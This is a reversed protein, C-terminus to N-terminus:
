EPYYFCFFTRHGLMDIGADERGYEPEDVGCVLEGARDADQQRPQQQQGDEGAEDAAIQQRLGGLRQAPAARFKGRELRGEQVQGRGGGRLAHRACWERAPLAQEEHGRLRGNRRHGLLGLVDRRREGVGLERDAGFLRRVPEELAPPPQVDEHSAEDIAQQQEM